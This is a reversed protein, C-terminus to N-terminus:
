IYNLAFKPHQRTLRLKTITHPPLVVLLLTMGSQSINFRFAFPDRFHSSSGGIGILRNAEETQETPFLYVM